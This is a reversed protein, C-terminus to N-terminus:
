HWYVPPRPERCAPGLDRRAPDLDSVLTEVATLLGERSPNNLLESLEDHDNGIDDDLMDKASYGCNPVAKGDPRKFFWQNQYDREISFGGEHILKHHQSCLLMLNDLSTEGGNSWHEIHHADVFRTHQCGPFRCGKDRASLARKIAQPVTRTKRGINLPEGKEDEGLIM